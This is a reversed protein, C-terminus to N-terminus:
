PRWKLMWRSEGGEDLIPCYVCTAVSQDADCDCHRVHDALEGLDSRLEELESIRREIERKQRELVEHIEAGFTVCDSSLAKEVFPGIQALPLGLLRLQRVLRLRRVDSRSYNRYGSESRQTPPIYGRDEYFRIAKVTLGTLKSVAGINLESTM